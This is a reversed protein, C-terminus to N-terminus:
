PACTLRHEIAESNTQYEGRAAALTNLLRETAERLADEGFENLSRGTLEAAMVARAHIEEDVRLFVNGSYSKEPSKGIQKCTELYDEVAERFAAILGEVTDSHFGIIDDIGAIHGVFVGDEADFQVRAQYGNHKLINTM